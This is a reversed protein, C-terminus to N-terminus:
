RLETTRLAALRWEGQELSSIATFAVAFLPPEGPAGFSATGDVVIVDGISRFRDAEVEKVAGAPLEAFRGRHFAEIEQRGRLWEGTEVRYDGDATFASALARADRQNWGNEFREVVARV